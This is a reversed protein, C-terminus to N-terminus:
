RRTTTTRCSRDRWRSCKTSRTHGNVAVLRARLLDAGDAQGVVFVGDSFTYFRTPYAHLERRNAPDLPFIGTHGDRMGPLAALRMLGVLLEDGNLRDARATLEAVAADFREPSLDHFLNPHDDRLHQAALQVDAAQPTLALAVATFLTAIV